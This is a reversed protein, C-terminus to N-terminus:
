HVPPAVASPAPRPCSPHALLVLAPAVVAFVPVMVILPEIFPLSVFIGTLPGVLLVVTILYCAGAAGYLASHFRGAAQFMGVVIGIGGIWGLWIGVVGTYAGLPTQGQICSYVQSYPGQVCSLLGSESGTAVAAAVILLLLGSSGVICLASAVWYKPDIKRLVSYGWRYAFFSVLLLAAGVLLFWSSWGILTTSATSIGGSTHRSLEVLVVPLAVAAIGGALGFAGGAGLWRNGRRELALETSQNM